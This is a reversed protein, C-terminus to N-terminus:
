SPDEDSCELRPFYVIVGLGMSDTRVNSVMWHALDFDDEGLVQSIVFGLQTPNFSGEFGCCTTGYMARGSYGTTYEVDDMALDSLLERIAELQNETIEM